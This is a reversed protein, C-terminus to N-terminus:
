NPLTQGNLPDCGKIYYYTATSKTGTDERDGFGGWTYMHDRATGTSGFVIASPCQDDNAGSDPDYLEDLWNEGIGDLRSLRVYDDMRNINATSSYADGHFGLYTSLSGSATRVNFYAGVGANWVEYQASQCARTIFVDLDNSGGNGWSVDTDTFVRCDTWSGTNYTNSGMVWRSYYRGASWQAAGHTLVFGVDAHDIGEPDATDDGGTLKTSDSLDIKDLGQNLYKHVSDWTGDSIWGDFRSRITAAEDDMLPLDDGTCEGAGDFNGVAFITAENNALATTAATGVALCSLVFLSARRAASSSRTM